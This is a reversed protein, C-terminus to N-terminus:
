AFFSKAQEIDNYIQIKLADLSPFKQEDRLKKDFRVEVERGYLHGHFDLLHVELIPRTEGGVTPRVGVNAVGPLWHEEGVLQLRM